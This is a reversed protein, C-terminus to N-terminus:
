PAEMRALLARWLRAGPAFDPDATALLRALLARLEPSARSARYLERWQGRDGRLAMDLLGEPTLTDSWRDRTKSAFQPMMGPAYGGAARAAVRRM